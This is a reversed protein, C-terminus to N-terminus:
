GPPLRAASRAAGLRKYRMIAPSQEIRGSYAPGFRRLDLDLSISLWRMTIWMRWPLPARSRSTGSEASAARPVACSSAISSAALRVEKGASSALAADVLGDGVLDDPVGAACRSRAGSELLLDM